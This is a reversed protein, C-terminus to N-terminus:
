VYLCLLKHTTNGRPIGQSGVKYLKHKEILNDLKTFMSNLLSMVEIPAILGTINAFGIIDSFLITVEDFTQFFSFVGRWLAM